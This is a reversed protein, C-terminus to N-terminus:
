LIKLKCYVPKGLLGQASKYYIAQIKVYVQRKLSPLGVTQVSLLVILIKWNLGGLILVKFYFFLVM